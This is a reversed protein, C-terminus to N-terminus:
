PLNQIQKGLKEFQKRKWCFAKEFEYSITKYLKKTM